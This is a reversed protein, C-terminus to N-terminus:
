YTSRDTIRCVSRNKFAEICDLQDENVSRRSLSIEDREVKEGRKEKNKREKLISYFGNANVRPPSQIVHPYGDKDRYSVLASAAL